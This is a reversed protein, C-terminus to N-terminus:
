ANAKVWRKVIDTLAAKKAKVDKVDMFKALARDKAAWELIGAPDEFVFGKADKVRAGRHFVLQIGAKARLHFTIRDEGNFCFSPANWKVHETIAPNAALIISRILVIEAELPHDLDRIYGDIERTKNSM